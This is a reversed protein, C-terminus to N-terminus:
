LKISQNFKQVVPSLNHCVGINHIRDTGSTAAATTLKRANV